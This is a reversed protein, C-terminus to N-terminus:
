IESKIQMTQENHIKQSFGFGRFLGNTSQHIVLATIWLAVLRNNGNSWL